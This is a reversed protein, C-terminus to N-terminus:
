ASTCIGSIALNHIKHSVVDFFGISWTASHIGFALIRIEDIIFLITLYKDITSLRSTAKPIQNM